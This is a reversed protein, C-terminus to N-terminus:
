PAPEPPPRVRIKFAVKKVGERAVLPRDGHFLRVWRAPLEGITGRSASLPRWREGELLETWAVSRKPADPALDIGGVLRSPVGSTRLFTCLLREQGLPAAHGTRTAKLVSRSGNARPTYTAVLARAMALADVEGAAMRPEAFRVLTERILPSTSQLHRTPRLWRAAEGRVEGPDVFPQPGVPTTTTRTRVRFTYTVRKPGQLAPHTLIALRLGDRTEERLSFGRLTLKESVLEQHEDSQVLPLELRADRGDGEVRVSIRVERDFAKAEAAPAAPAEAGLLVLLLATVPATM